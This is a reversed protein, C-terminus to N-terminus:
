ANDDPTNMQTIRVRRVRRGTMNTVSVRLNGETIQDGLQPMKDLRGYILGGITDVDEPLQSEVGLVQNLQDITVGADALIEHRSVTQLEPLGKDFEDMLEGVIEEIVDTVTVLGDIGGHENVVLAMSTRQQQFTRLLTEVSQFETVLVAERALTPIDLDTDRESVGLLDLAFLVGRINNVNDLSTEYVPLKSHGGDRMLSLVDTVSDNIGVALIDPRPTMIERVKVVDMRLIGRIMRLEREEAPINVEELYSLGTKILDAVELYYARKSGPLISLNDALRKIVDASAIYNFGAVLPRALTRVRILYKRVLLTNFLSVLIKVVFVVLFALLLGTWGTDMLAAIFVVCVVFVLLTVVSIIRLLMAGIPLLYGELLHEETSDKNNHGNGNKLQEDEDSLSSLFVSSVPFAALVLSAVIHMVLTLGLIAWIAVTLGDIM